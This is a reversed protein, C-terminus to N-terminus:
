VRECIDTRDKIQSGGDRVTQLLDLVKDPSVQIMKLFLSRNRTPMGRGQEWNRVASVDFAFTQAFQIQTMGLRKRLSRIEEATPPTWTPGGGRAARKAHVLADDIAVLVKNEM